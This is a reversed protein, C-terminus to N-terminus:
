SFDAPRVGNDAPEAPEASLPVNSLVAVAGGSETFRREGTSDPTIGAAGFAEVVRATDLWYHCLETEGAFVVPVQEGYREDLAPDSDVDIVDVPVGYRSALPALAACLEDCLHCWARSYVTLRV